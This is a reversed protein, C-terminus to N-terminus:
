GGVQRALGLWADRQIVLEQLADDPVGVDVTELLDNVLTVLGFAFFPALEEITRDTAGYGAVLGRWWADIADRGIAGAHLTAGLQLCAFTRGLDILPDGVAANTWDLVSLRGDDGVLLNGPHFDVHLATPTRQGTSIREVLWPEVGALRYEFNGGAALDDTAPLAHIQRLLAGGSHGLAEAREPEAALVDLMIRGTLWEMVIVPCDAVAGITDIRPTAIGAAHAHRQARAEHEVTARDSHPFLRLLLAGRPAPRQVRWLIAGSMGGGVPLVQTADGLDLAAIVEDPTPAIMAM